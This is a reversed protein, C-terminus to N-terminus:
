PMVPVIFVAFAVFSNALEKLAFSRLFDAFQGLSPEGDAALVFDRLM